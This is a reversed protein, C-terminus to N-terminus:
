NHRMALRINHRSFRAGDPTATLGAGHLECLMAEAAQMRTPERRLCDMMRTYLAEDNNLWLSVNWATWSEHGNYPRPRTSKRTM